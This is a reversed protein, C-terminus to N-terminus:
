LHADTKELNKLFGLVRRVLDQVVEEPDKKLDHTAGEVVGSFEEDVKGTGAKVVGIWSEVLAKRDVFSPVYEDKGSYLICLPSRAPLNGFSQRLQDDSLDSSFYDDEGNKTPSALSLWRRACVPDPYFGGTESPPIIEEGKGVAVMAQAALVSREYLSPAMMEKMAERDSVSAQLIGGDVGPREKCGSGTLYEMVDQCGTSHGMLVIKGKKIERFYAVCKALEEADKKLSSTGWGIYSSSLLVQALSWDPPLSDAIVSPYKTTLLGDGLGGIWILINQSPPFESTPTIHEFAVM